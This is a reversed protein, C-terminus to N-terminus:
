ATQANPVGLVRFMEQLDEDEEVDFVINMITDPQLNMSQIDLGFETQIGQINSTLYQSSEISSDAVKQVSITVRWM